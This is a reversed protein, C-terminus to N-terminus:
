NSVGLRSNNSTTNQRSIMYLWMCPPGWRHEGVALRQKYPSLGRLSPFSSPDRETEVFLTQTHTQAFRSAVVQSITPNVCNHLEVIFDCSRLNPALDPRLLGLECGECDCVVLTRSGGLAQLDEKTCEGAVVVRDDVANLRAMRRCLQRAYPDIDFAFVRGAPLLLSLGVAYYGEACGINVVKTYNRGRVEKLVEHLQSEYCGLIKPLLAYQMIRRSTLLEPLYQMGEFPGSQVALPPKAITKLIQRLVHPYWRERLAECSEPFSNELLRKSRQVFAAVLLGLRKAETTKPRPMFEGLFDM